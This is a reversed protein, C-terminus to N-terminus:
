PETALINFRGTLSQSGTAFGKGGARNWFDSRAPHQFVIKFGKIGGASM